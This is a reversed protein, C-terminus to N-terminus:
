ELLNSPTTHNEVREPAHEGVVEGDIEACGVRQDVHLALTDDAVLGGHDRHLLFGSAAALDEGHTGLCFLHEPARRAVDDGDSRQLVADDGVELDSLRHQAVEDLFNV